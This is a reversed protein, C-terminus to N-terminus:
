RFRFRDGELKSAGPDHSVARMPWKSWQPVFDPGDIVPAMQASSRAAAGNVRLMSFKANSLDASSLLPNPAALATDDTAHAALPLAGVLCAVSLSAILPHSM